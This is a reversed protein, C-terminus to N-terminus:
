WSRTPISPKPLNSTGVPTGGAPGRSSETALSTKDAVKAELDATTAAAQLATTAVHRLSVLMREHEDDYPLGDARSGLVVLVEPASQPVLPM